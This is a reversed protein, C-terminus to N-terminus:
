GTLRANPPLMANAKDRRIIDTCSQHGHTCVDPMGEPFSCCCDACVWGCEGRAARMEWENTLKDMAEITKSLDGDAPAIFIGPM